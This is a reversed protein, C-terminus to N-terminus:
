ARRLKVVNNEAIEGSATLVHQAWLGLAAEREELFEHRQYIAAVGHIRGQVHNLLKDAVEWRVGLRALATVGTRRLDHLRWPVLPAPQVGCEAAIRAREEVIAKDLRAKPSSFSAIPRKGTTTFVLPSKGVRVAGRLVARAPDTLHVLHAKGNKARSGPLEWVALHDKSDNGRAESLVEVYGGIRVYGDKTRGYLCLEDWRLGAAEAERQLTLLLFRFYDGYPWGLVGAGRWVEGLEADTLVRDRQHERGEIPVGAFPNDGVLGHRKAWGFMARAYALSRRAMTAGRRRGITDLVRRAAASDIAHVPQAALDGFNVRLSRIAEGRYRPRRHALAEREWRDALAAFTMRDALDQAKRAKAAAAAERRATKRAEAPHEGAAVKGRLATAVKRAKVHTLEGFRGLRMRHTRGDRWYEFLFVKAGARTVRLGLGTVDDDFVVLDRRDAPCTLADIERKILKM